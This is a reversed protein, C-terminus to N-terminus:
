RLRTPEISSFRRNLFTRPAETAIPLDDLNKISMNINIFYVTVPHQFKLHTLHYFIFFKM